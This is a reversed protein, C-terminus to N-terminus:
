FFASFARFSSAFFQTRPRLEDKFRHLSARHQGRAAASAATAAVAPPAAATAVNTVAAVGHDAPSAAAVGAHTRQHPVGRTPSFNINFILSPSSPRVCGKLRGGRVGASGM